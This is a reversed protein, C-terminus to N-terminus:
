WEIDKLVVPHHETYVQQIPTLLSVPRYSVQLEQLPRNLDRPTIGLLVQAQHNALRLLGGRDVVLQATPEVAFATEFLRPHNSM